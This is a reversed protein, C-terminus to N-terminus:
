WPNCIEIVIRKEQVGKVPFCLNDTEIHADADVFNGLEDLTISGVVNAQMPNVIGLYDSLKCLSYYSLTKVLEKTIKHTLTATTTTM